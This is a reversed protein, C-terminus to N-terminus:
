IREIVQPFPTGVRPERVFTNYPDVLGVLKNKKAWLADMISVMKNFHRRHIVIVDDQGLMLYILLVAYCEIIKYFIM